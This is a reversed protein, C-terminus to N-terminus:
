WTEIKEQFVHPMYLVPLEQFCWFCVRKKNRQSAVLSLYFVHVCSCFLLISQFATILWWGSHMSRHLLSTYGEITPRSYRPASAAKHAFSAFYSCYDAGRGLRLSHFGEIPHENYWVIIKRSCNEGVLRRWALLDYSTFLLCSKM